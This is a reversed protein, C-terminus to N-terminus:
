EGAKTESSDEREIASDIARDLSGPDVNRLDTNVSILVALGDGATHICM